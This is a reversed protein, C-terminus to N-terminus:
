LLLRPLRAPGGARTVPAGSSRRSVLCLKVVRATIDSTSCTSGSWGPRGSMALWCSLAPGAVGAGADANLIRDFVNGAAQRM